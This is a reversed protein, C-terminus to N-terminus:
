GASYAPLRDALEALLPAAADKPSLVPDDTPWEIALEPDNWRVTIEAAADWPETCKYAIEASEGLVCFGHLFGPPVYLQRFNEASLEVGVWRRFTPSGRRVDVAVDFVEGQLARVLKGQPHAGLQAHLGRLTRAISRSQNDQVFAPAIGAARYRAAHYTEVFVGRADRHVVPEVILVGSVATAIVRM